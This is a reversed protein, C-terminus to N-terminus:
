HVPHTNIISDCPQQKHLFAKRTCHSLSRGRCWPNEQTQLSFPPLNFSRTPTCRRTMRDGRADPLISLDAGKPPGNLEALHHVCVTAKFPGCLLTESRRCLHGDSESYQSSFSPFNSLKKRSLPCILRKNLLDSVAPSDSASLFILWLLSSHAFHVSSLLINLGPLHKRVKIRRKRLNEPYRKKPWVNVIYEPAEIIKCRQQQFNLPNKEKQWINRKDHKM